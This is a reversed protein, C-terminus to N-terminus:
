REIQSPELNLTKNEAGYEGPTTGADSYTSLEIGVPTNRAGPRESCWRVHRLITQHPKSGLTQSTEVGVGFDSIDRQTLSGLRSFLHDELSFFARKWFLGVFFKASKVASRVRLNIIWVLVVVCLFRDAPPSRFKEGFIMARSKLLWDSRSTCCSTSSKSFTIWDGIASLSILM